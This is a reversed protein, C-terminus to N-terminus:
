QSLLELRIRNTNPGFGGVVIAVILMASAVIVFVGTTGYAKLAQAIIFGVFISSFRSWSYVFGVAQARIRTPYLEAQYTHLACSFWSNALTIIVGLVIIGLTTHQRSWIMGCAAITLALCVLQWKRELVDAYRMALLSGLPNVLAIILVYALSRTVTIGQHVLLVPIWAAFGYFGIAQFANFITLMATRSFYARSWIETWVGQQPAVEEVTQDPPPLPSGTELSVQREIESTIADAEEGRGHLELWRPSEPLSKRLFWVCPAGLAGAIAVYRWGALGLFKHPIALLSIAAVCPVSCYSIFQSFAIYSGRSSRPTIETIYSAITVLQVGIGLGCVFRWFDIAVASKMFAMVLTAASYWILSLAFLARRGYRDSFWSFVLTGLFMGAFGAGVFSAFGSVDLPNSTTATFIGAHIFGVAIYGTMFLDYLEFFGGVSIRAVLGRLYGCPPLRDLRAAVQPTTLRTGPM